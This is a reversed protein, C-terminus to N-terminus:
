NVIQPWDEQSYKWIAPLTHCEICRHVFLIRGRELTSVDASRKGHSMAAMHPTVPPVYNSTECGVFLIFAFLLMAFGIRHSTAIRPVARAERASQPAEGCDDSKFSRASYNTGSFNAVALAGDGARSARASGLASTRSKTKMEFDSALFRGFSFIRST